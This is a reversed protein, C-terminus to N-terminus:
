EKEVIIEPDFESQLLNQIANLTGMAASPCSGCAGQYFIKLTKNEYSLVRLDGGDQQLAPRVRADLIANIQALAADADNVKKINQSANKALHPDHTGIKDTIATRIKEQITDWDASGNQSVTIFNDFFYVETIANSVQFIAKALPNDASEKISTYTCNGEAIVRTNLVFKLANPNPTHEITLHTNMLFEKTLYNTRVRYSISYM